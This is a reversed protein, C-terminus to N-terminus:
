GNLSARLLKKVYEHLSLGSQAAQVRLQNYVNIEDENLVLDIRRINHLAIHQYESPSAWYCTLCITPDHYQLWNLCHECSWSKSRNCEGCLLMYDDPNREPSPDDGAVQYPIRHDVQLYRLDYETLCIQCRSGDRAVLQQKLRKSLVRRGALRDNKVESLDGFQYAAINRGASNKVRVTVLPIGLERLDRAARPPHDYGYIQKLEETTVLGHQLIHQAVIRPRKSRINNIRQVFEDPYSQESM